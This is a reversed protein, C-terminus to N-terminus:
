GKKSIKVKVSKVKAAKAAKGAAGVASKVIADEGQGPRRIGFGQGSSINAPM